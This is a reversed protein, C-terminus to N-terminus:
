PNLYFIFMSDSVIFCSHADFGSWEQFFSYHMKFSCKKQELNVFNLVLVCSGRVLFLKCPFPFAVTGTIFCYDVYCLMQQANDLNM